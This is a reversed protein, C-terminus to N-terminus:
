DLRRFSRRGIAHPILRVPRRRLRMISVSRLLHVADAPLRVKAAVGHARMVGVLSMVFSRRGLGLMRMIHLARSCYSCPHGRVLDRATVKAIRFAM